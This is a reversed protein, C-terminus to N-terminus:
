VKSSSDVRFEHTIIIEGRRQEQQQDRISRSSQAAGRVHRSDREDLEIYPDSELKRISHSIVTSFGHSNQRQNGSSDHLYQGNVISDSPGRRKRRKMLPGLEPLSVCLVGTALEALAWIIINPQAWTKDPNGSGQLRVLFGVFSFVPACLGFTFVLVVTIKKSLKMKMNWVAKVPLVLVILDTVTNFMGSVDLLMPTNICTGEIKPNFIKARPVCEWIKVITTATYFLILLVILFVIIIDFLSSRQPSFVRRYLWLVALKGICITIGYHISVINFWYSFEQLEEPTVDWEHMGGHHAMTVAGIGCFAITGVWSTLALWDEFIWTRKIWVRTYARLFFFITIFPIAIGMTINNVQVLPSPSAFDSTEGPPPPLAPTAFTTTM